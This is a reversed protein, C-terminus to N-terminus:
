SIYRILSPPIRFHKGTIQSDQATPVPDTNVVHQPNSAHEPHPSNTRKLNMFQTTLLIRLIDSDTNELGHLSSLEGNNFVTMIDSNVEPNWGSLKNRNDKNTLLNRVHADIMPVNSREENALYENEFWLHNIVNWLNQAGLHYIDYADWYMYLGEYSELHCIYRCRDHFRQRLDDCFVQIQAASWMGINRIWTPDEVWRFERAGNMTSFAAYAIDAPPNYFFDVPPEGEYVHAWGWAQPPPPPGASEIAKELTFNQYTPAM